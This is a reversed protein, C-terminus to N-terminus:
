FGGIISTYNRSMVIPTRALAGIDDEEAEGTYSSNESQAASRIGAKNIALFAASYSALAGFLVFILMVAGGGWNTCYTVKRYKLVYGKKISLSPNGDRQDGHLLVLGM